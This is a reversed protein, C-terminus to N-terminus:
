QSRLAEVPDIAAARRAPLSNAVLATTTLVLPVTVFTAPDTASVRYLLGALLRTAALAGPVGIMVGIVALRVGDRLVLGIIDGRRAGLAVRVGLERTRQTVGFSILGYLGVIALTVAVVAFAGILLSRFRPEAITSDILSRLPQWRSPQLPDVAYLVDRLAAITPSRNSEVRAVFVFNHAPQQELPIYLEEEPQEILSWHKVDGVVGVITMWSSGSDGAKGIRIRQGLPDANPWYRRAMGESVLAVPPPAGEDSKSFSRGRLVPIHMAGFYDGAISRLHALVDSEPTRERGQIVMRLRLDSQGFPLYDIVGARSVGPLARVRALGDDMFRRVAGGDAYRAHPLGIESVYVGTPDFGPDSSTLRTFSRGLLGAAILLVNATALQLVVLVSSVRRRGRDATTSRGTTRLSQSLGTASARWAPALGFALATLVAIGGVFGLVRGDIGINGRSSEPVLTAYLSTLWVAGLLGLSAAAASLVLSETLLQGVLRRRGAGLAVRISTEHERRRARAMMLNAVNACAVVLVLAVAGLLLLLAHRAGGALEEHLPVLRIRSKANENPYSAALRAAIADMERQAQALTVDDRLRATAGYRRMGRQVEAPSWTLPQWLDISENVLPGPFTFDAPMVGAVRWREGDLVIDRGVIRRDGAFRRTWLHYSLLIAHAGVRGDDPAFGTGLQPRTGLVSFLDVSVKAARLREPRANDGQSTLNVWAFDEAAIADFSRSAARWDLFDASSVPGHPAAGEGTWIQVIREPHDFPLRRLLVVDVVSFIATLPGIAVALTFVVVATFGPSRLLSRVAASLDQRLTDMLEGTPFPASSRFPLEM